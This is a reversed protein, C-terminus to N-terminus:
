EGRGASSAVGTQLVVEVFVEGGAGIEREPTGPVLQKPKYTLRWTGPRALEAKAATLTYEDPPLGESELFALGLALAKRCEAAPDSGM